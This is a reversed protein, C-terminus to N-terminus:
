GKKNLVPRDGQQIWRGQLLARFTGVMKGAAMERKRAM